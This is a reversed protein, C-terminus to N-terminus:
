CGGYEYSSDDVADKANTKKEEENFYREIIRTPYVETKTNFRERHKQAEKITRFFGLHNWRGGANQQLEYFEM